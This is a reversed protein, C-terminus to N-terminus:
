PRPMPRWTRTASRRRCRTSRSRASTPRCPPQPERRFIRRSIRRSSTPSSRGSSPVGIAGGMSRFLTATSTAVGLNEYDVANQVALVLVQMVLGLGLGLVFMYLSATAVSTDADMLSLLYLGIVTVATGVIPFVKYRGYRTIPQGSGISSVLVGAMLPLMQLGSETPGSGKVVQLYLPLYTVSGFLAM